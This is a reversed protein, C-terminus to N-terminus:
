SGRARLPGSPHLRRSLAIAHVAWANPSGHRHGPNLSERLLRRVIPGGLRWRSSALLALVHPRLKRNAAAAIHTPYDVRVVNAILESGLAWLGSRYRVPSRRTRLGSRARCRSRGDRPAAGPSALCGPRVLESACRCAFAAACAALSAAFAAPVCPFEPDCPGHTRLPLAAQTLPSAPFGRGRESEIQPSAAGRSDHV